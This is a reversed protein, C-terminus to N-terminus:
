LVTYLNPVHPLDLQFCASQEDIIKKLGIVSIVLLNELRVGVIIYHPLHLPLLRKTNNHQTANHHQIQTSAHSNDVPEHSLM